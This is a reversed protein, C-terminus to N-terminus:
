TGPRRFSYGLSLECLGGVFHGYQVLLPEGLHLQSRVRALDVASAEDGLVLRAPGGPLERLALFVFSALALVVAVAEAIGTLLVRGARLVAGVRRHMPVGQM